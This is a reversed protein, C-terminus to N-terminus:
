NINFMEPVVIVGLYGGIMGQTHKLNKLFIEYEDRFWQIIEADVTTYHPRGEKTLAEQILEDSLESIGLGVLLDLIVKSQEKTIVPEHALGNEAAEIIRTIMYGVSDEEMTPRWIEDRMAKLPNDSSGALSSLTTLFIGCYDTQLGHPPTILLGDRDYARICVFM